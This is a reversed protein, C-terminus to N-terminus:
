PDWGLGIADTVANRCSRGPVCTSTVTQFAAGPRANVPFQEECLRLALLSARGGAGGEKWSMERGRSIGIIRRDMMRNIRAHKHPREEVM